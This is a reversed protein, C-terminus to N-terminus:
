IAIRRYCDTASVASNPHEQPEHKKRKGLMQKKLIKVAAGSM